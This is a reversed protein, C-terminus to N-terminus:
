NGAWSATESVALDQVVPEISLSSSRDQTEM